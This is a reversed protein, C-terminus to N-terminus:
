HAANSSTAFLFKQRKMVPYKSDKQKFNSMYQKLGCHGTLVEVLIYVTEEPEYDLLVYLLANM